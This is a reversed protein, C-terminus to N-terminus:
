RTLEVSELAALIHRGSRLRDVNLVWQKLQDDYRVLWFGNTREAHEFLRLVRDSDPKSFTGRKSWPVRGVFRGNEDRNTEDVLYRLLKARFAEQEALIDDPDSVYSAMRNSHSQPQIESAEALQQELQGNELAQREAQQLLMATGADHRRAESEVVILAREHEHEAVLRALGEPTHQRDVQQLRLVTGAVLGGTALGWLSLWLLTPPEARAMREIALQAIVVVGGVSLGYGAILTMLYERTSKRREAIEAATSTSSHREPAMVDGSVTKVAQRQQQAYTDLLKSALEGAQRSSILDPKALAAPEGAPVFSDRM